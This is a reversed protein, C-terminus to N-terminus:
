QKYELASSIEATWVLHRSVDTTPMNRGEALSRVEGGALDGRGGTKPVPSPM